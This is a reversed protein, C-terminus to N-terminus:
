FKSFDGRLSFHRAASANESRFISLCNSMNQVPTYVRFVVIYLRVVFWRTEIFDICEQCETRRTRIQLIFYVDKIYAFLYVNSKKDLFIHKRASLVRTFGDHRYHKKQM